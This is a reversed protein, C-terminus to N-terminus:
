DHRPEGVDMEPAGGHPELGTPAPAAVEPDAVKTWSGGLRKFLAGNPARWTEGEAYFKTQEHVGGLEPYTVHM